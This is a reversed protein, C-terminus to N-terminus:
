VAGNEVSQALINEAPIEHEVFFSALSPNV